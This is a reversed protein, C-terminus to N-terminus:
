IDLPHIFTALFFLRLFPLLDLLRVISPLVLQALLLLQVVLM